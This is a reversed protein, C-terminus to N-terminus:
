RYAVEALFIMLFGLALSIYARGFIHTGFYRKAIIFGAISAGLPNVFSVISLLVDTTEPDILFSHFLQFAIVLGIILVIIKFNIPSDLKNPVIDPEKDM